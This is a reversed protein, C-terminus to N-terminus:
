GVDDRSAARQAPEDLRHGPHVSYAQDVDVGEGGEHYRGALADM